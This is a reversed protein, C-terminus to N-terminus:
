PAPVIHHVVLTGTESQSYSWLILWEEDRCMVPIGWLDLSQFRRRRNPAAGPDQELRDLATNLHGACSLTRDGSELNTLLDDAEPSFKLIAM